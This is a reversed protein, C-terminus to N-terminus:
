EKVIKINTIYFDEEEWGNNYETFYLHDLLFTAPLADPASFVITNGAKVELFSGSKRISIRIRNIAKNNSFGPVAVERPSISKEASKIHVTAWGDRDDFGPRIKVMIYNGYNNEYKKLGALYCEIGPSGWHFGKKVFLDFSATFGSPLNNAPKGAHLNHGKLQVWNQGEERVVIPRQGNGNLNSSWELPTKGEPTASFDEFFLVSADAALRKSLESRETVQVPEEYVPSRLPQYALGRVKEPDFFFHYVYGFNFNNVISEHMHKFADENMAGGWWKIMIWQPKDTKCLVEMEPRIKLLPLSKDIRGEEEPKAGTFIDTGNSLDSLTMFRAYAPEQLRNRYKEKLLQLTEKWKTYQQQMNGSLRDIEAQRGINNAKIESIREALKFPLAEEAYQLAEGITLQVFPHLNNKSLIVHNIRQISGTKPSTHTIYRNLSPFTSLGYLKAEERDDDTYQPLTFLSVKGTEYDQLRYSLPIENACITWNYGLNNEPTWKGNAKKLFIYSAARAGYSHPVAKNYRDSNYVGTKPTVYKIIDGLAGKPSYSAQMWNAFSDIISLQAISYKKDDVQVTKAAGKFKYIKMWGLYQGQYAAYNNQAMAGTGTISLFLLFVPKIYTKYQFKMM